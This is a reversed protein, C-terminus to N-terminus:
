AGGGENEGGGTAADEGVSTVGGVYQVSSAWVAAEEGASCETWALPMSTRVVRRDLWFSGGEGVRERPASSLFVITDAGEAPSRLTRLNTDYFDKMASELGETAAWGPHMCHVDVNISQEELRRAWELANANFLIYHRVCICTYALGKVTLILDIIGSHYVFVYLLVVITMVGESLIIQNRKALAYFFTGDYKAIRDCNLDENIGKVSYAGGSSVNIVRGAGGPSKQLAPLLLDTLLMTGGLMTAMIQENGEETHTRETPMAGANNVLVDLRHHQALFSQSFSRVSAFLSTDCTHCHINSNGTSAVIKNKAAVCRDTCLVHCIIVICCSVLVLIFLV